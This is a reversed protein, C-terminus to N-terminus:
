DLTISEQSNRHGSQTSRMPKAIDPIHGAPSIGSTNNHVTKSNFVDAKSADATSQVDPLDALTQSRSVVERDDLARYFAKRGPTFKVLRKLTIQTTWIPRRSVTRGNHWRERQVRTPKSRSPNRKKQWELLTNSSARTM